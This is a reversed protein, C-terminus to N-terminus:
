FETQDCLCINKFQTLDSWRNSLYGVKLDNEYQSENSANTFTLQHGLSLQSLESKEM